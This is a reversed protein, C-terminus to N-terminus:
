IAGMVECELLGTMSFEDALPVHPNEAGAQSTIHERRMHVGCMAELQTIQCSHGMM